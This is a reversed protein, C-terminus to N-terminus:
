ALGGVQRGAGVQRELDAGVLGVRQEVRDVTRDPREGRARAIEGPEFAIEDELAALRAVASGISRKRMSPGARRTPSTRAEPAFFAASGASAAESRASAGTTSEPTGRTRSRAVM